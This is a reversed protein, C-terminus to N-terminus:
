NLVFCCLICDGEELILWQSNTELQFGAGNNM